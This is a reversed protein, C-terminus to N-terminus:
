RCLFYIYARMSCHTWNDSVFFACMTYIFFFFFILYFVLSSNISLAGSQTHQPVKRMTLCKWRCGSLLLYFNIVVILQVVFNPHQMTIVNMRFELMSHSAQNLNANRWIAIVGFITWWCCSIAVVFVASFFIWRHRYCCILLLLKSQKWFSIRLVTVVVVVVSKCKFDFVITDCISDLVNLWIM